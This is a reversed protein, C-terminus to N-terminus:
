CLMGGLLPDNWFRGLVDGGRAVQCSSWCPRVAAAAAAPGGTERAWFFKAMIWARRFGGGVEIVVLEEEIAAEEGADGPGALRAVSGGVGGVGVGEIGVSSPEGGRPFGGVVAWCVEIM